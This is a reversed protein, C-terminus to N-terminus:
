KHVIINGRELPTAGLSYVNGNADGGSTCAYIRLGFADVSGLFSNAWADVEFKCTATQTFPRKLTGTGRFIARLDGTVILYEMATSKFDFQLNTVLFDVIQPRYRFELNGSPTTAGPVYKSVFGFTARGPLPPHLLDAGAPSLISGSGSAFGASPSYVVAMICEFAGVNGEADAGRVCLTYLGAASFPSVSATVNETVQDFVGDAPNMPIFEGGNVSYEASAVNDGGTAADSVTATLVIPLNVTVPNPNAVVNSTIPGSQIVGSKCKGASGADSIGQIESTSLARNYITVEDLRGNMFGLSEAQGITLPANPNPIALTNIVSGFPLGNVFATFTNGQRRIALHYWQNLNPAFPDFTLFQDGITPSSFVFELRGGGLAFFWKNVIFPGEDNGIFIYGPHSTTGGEPSDLNAWLEITFDNSGFAWLDSDPAAVYDNAGDFRLAGAVNGAAPVPGNVQAGPNNGVIDGATTGSTEDLPWWSIAGSRLQVCTTPTPTPTPTPAARCKGASGADYIVQIESTSLTRNYITVEDILGGFPTCTGSNGIKLPAMNSGVTQGTTLVLSGNVYQRQTSTEGDYTVALHTWTNLPVADSPVANPGIALQYFDFDGGCGQRKGVLHMVPASSSRFAWAEITLSSGPAFDLAASHPVLVFDDVGDFSLAGTVQGVAPVPGNVYAGTNSGIVDEATTGSTEDLPWWAIIGPPPQVCTETAQTSVRIPLLLFSLSLGLFPVFLIIIRHHLVRTKHAQPSM